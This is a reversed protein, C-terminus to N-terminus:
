LSGHHRRSASLSSPLGTDDLRKQVSWHPRSEESEFDVEDACFHASNRSNLGYLLGMLFLCFVTVLAGFMFGAFFYITMSEPVLM